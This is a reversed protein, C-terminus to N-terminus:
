RDSGTSAPSNAPFNCKSVFYCRLQQSATSSVSGTSRYTELRYANQPTSPDLFLEDIRKEVTAGPGEISTKGPPSTHIFTAGNGNKDIHELDITLKSPDHKTFALVKAGYLAVIHDTIM